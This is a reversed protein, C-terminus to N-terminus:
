LTNRSPFIPSEKGALEVPIGVGRQLNRYVNQDETLGLECFPILENGKQKWKVFEKSIVNGTKFPNKKKKKKSFSM